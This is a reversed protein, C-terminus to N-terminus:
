KYLYGSVEVNIHKSMMKEKNKYIDSIGAGAGSFSNYFQNNYGDGYSTANVVLYDVGGFTTPTLTCSAPWSGGFAGEDEKTSERINWIGTLSESTDRFKCSHLWNYNGNDKFHIGFMWSHRGRWEGNGGQMGFSDFSDTHRFLFGVDTDTNSAKDPRKNFGEQGLHSTITVLKGEDNEFKFNHYGSIKLQCSTEEPDVLLQVTVDHIGSIYKKEKWTEVQTKETDNQFYTTFYNFFVISYDTGLVLPAGYQSDEPYPRLSAQGNNIRVLYSGNSAKDISDKLHLLGGLLDISKNNGLSALLMNWNIYDNSILDSAVISKGAMGTTNLPDGNKDILSVSRTVNRGTTTVIEYTSVNAANTKKGNSRSKIEVQTNAVPIATDDDFQWWVYNADRYVGTNKPLKSDVNKAKTSAAGSYDQQTFIKLTGPSAVDFPNLYADGVKEVKTGYLAPPFSSDKQYVTLVADGANLSDLQNIKMEIRTDGDNKDYYTGPDCSEMDIVPDHSVFRATGTYPITRKYTSSDFFAVYSSPVSFVIKNAWPFQAPGLFDGDEPNPSPVSGDLGIEGQVVSRITFGTLLLYFEKTIKGRILLRVKGRQSLDPKFDKKPPKNKSDAVEVWEGPQIVVGDIIRVYSKIQNKLLDQGTSKFSDVGNPESSTTNTKGSPSSVDTNSIGPGYSIVRKCWGDNDPAGEGTFLAGVITNVAALRCNNPLNVTYPWLDDEAHSTNVPIKLLLSNGMGLSSALWQRETAPPNDPDVMAHQKLYIEYASLGVVRGENYLIQPM